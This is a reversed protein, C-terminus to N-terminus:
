RDSLQEALAQCSEATGLAPRWRNTSSTNYSSSETQTINQTAVIVKMVLEKRYKSLEKEMKGARVAYERTGADQITKLMDSVLKIRRLYALTTSDPKLNIKCVRKLNNDNSLATIHASVDDVLVAGYEKLGFGKPAMDSFPRDSRGYMAMTSAVEVRALAILWPLTEKRFAKEFEAGRAGQINANLGLRTVIGSYFSFESKEKIIKNYVEIQEPTSMAILSDFM